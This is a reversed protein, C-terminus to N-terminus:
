VSLRDLQVFIELAGATTSGSNNKFTMSITNGALTAVPDLGGMVADTSTSTFSMEASGAGGGQATVLIEYVARHVNNDCVSVLYRAASFGLGPGESQRVDFSDWASTSAGNAIQVNSITKALTRNVESRRGVDGSTRQSWIVEGEGLHLSGSTHLDGLFLAGDALDAKAAEQGGVSGTFVVNVNTSLLYQGTADTAAASSDSFLYKNAGFSLLKTSQAGGPLVQKRDHNGLISGSYLVDGLFVSLGYGPYTGPGPSSLGGVVGSLALSMNSLSTWGGGVFAGSGRGDPGSDSSSNILVLMKACDVAIPGTPAGTPGANNKVLFDVDMQEFNVVVASNDPSMLPGTANGPAGSGGGDAGSLINFVQKSQSHDELNDMTFSFGQRSNGYGVTADDRDFTPKIQFGTQGDGASKISAYTGHIDSLKIDISASIVQSEIKFLSIKGGAPNDHTSGSLVSLFIPAELNAEKDHSDLRLLESPTTPGAVSGAAAGSIHLVAQAPQEAGGDAALGGGRLLINGDPHIQFVGFPKREAKAGISGSIVQLIDAQPNFGAGGAISAGSLEVKLGIVNASQSVHLIASPEETSGPATRVSWGIGVNSATTYIKNETPSGAEWWYQDIDGGGGGGGGSSNITWQGTAQDFTTTTDGTGLLFASGEKVESISGTIHKAYLRGTNGPAGKTGEAIHLSSSVVLTGQVGRGGGPYAVASGSIVDIIFRSGM